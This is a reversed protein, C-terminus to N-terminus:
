QTPPALRLQRVALPLRHRRPQPRERAADRGGVGGILRGHHLVRGEELAQVGLREEEGEVVLRPGVLLVQSCALEFALGPAVVLLVGGPELHAGRLRM